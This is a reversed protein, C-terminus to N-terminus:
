ELVLSVAEFPHTFSVAIHSVLPLPEALTTLASSQKHERASRATASLPESRGYQFLNKAQAWHNAGQSVSYDIQGSTNYGQLRSYRADRLGNM